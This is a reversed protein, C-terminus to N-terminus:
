VACVATLAVCLGPRGCRGACRAGCGHVRCAALATKRRPSVKAAGARCADLERSPSASDLRRQGGEDGESGRLQGRVAQSALSPDPSDCASDRSPKRDEHSSTSSAEDMGRRRGRRPSDSGKSGTESALEGVRRKDEGIDQRAQLEM